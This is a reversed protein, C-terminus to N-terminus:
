HHDHNVDIFKGLQVKLLWGNTIMSEIIEKLLVSAM